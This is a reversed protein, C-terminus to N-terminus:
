RGEESSLEIKSVDVDGSILRPLLHDHTRRLTQNKKELLHEKKGLASAMKSFEQCVSIPPILIPVEKMQASSIEKFTAGSSYNEMLKLNNKLYYFIYESYAMCNPVISKFGQNTCLPNVAISTYGIPARSSFVVSGEPMLKAGSKKYGEETIDVSGREVYKYELKSFDRPTLWPIGKKTFYEEHKTSPTGGGVVTGIDSIKGSLWGKPIMGLESDVLEVREHGPFRFHVFWERYLRQAMEELIAVRRNNNEILNDYKSLVEIIKEQTSTDYITIPILKIIDQNLSAMTAGHSCHNSMWLKHEPTLLCYSVYRPLLQESEIRMRICDSGQFWGDYNASIYAHREVAGKRGFVIDQYSLIHSALRDRTEDSIYELVNEIISGMGINRVNIVPTGCDVYDKAKLQTGFPGTQLSIENKDIFAGLRMQSQKSM